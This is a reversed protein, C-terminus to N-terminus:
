VQALGSEFASIMKRVKSPTKALQSQKQPNHARDEEMNRPISDSTAAGDLGSGGLFLSTENSCIFRTPFEAPLSKSENKELEGQSEETLHVDVGQSV